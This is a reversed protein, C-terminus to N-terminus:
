SCMMQPFKKEQKKKRAGPKLFKLAQGVESGALCAEFIEVRGGAGELFFSNEGSGPPTKNKENKKGGDVLNNKSFCCCGALMRLACPLVFLEMEVCLQPPCVSWGQREQDMSACRNTKQSPMFNQQCPWREPIAQERWVECRM